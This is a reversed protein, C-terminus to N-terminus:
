KKGEESKFYGKKELADHAKACAFLSVISPACFPMLECGGDEGEVLFVGCFSLVAWLKIDHEIMWTKFNKKM